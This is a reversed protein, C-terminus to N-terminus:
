SKGLRWAKTANAFAVTSNPDWDSPYTTKLPVKVKEIRDKKLHEYKIKSLVIIKM